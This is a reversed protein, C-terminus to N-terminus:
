PTIKTLSTQDFDIIKQYSIQSSKLVTFVSEGVTTIYPNSVDLYTLRDTLTEVTAGSRGILLVGGLQDRFAQDARWILEVVFVSGETLALSTLSASAIIEGSPLDTDVNLGQTWKYLVLTPNALGEPLRVALGYANRTTANNILTETSMLCAVGASSISAPTSGDIQTLRLTTQLRGSLHGHSLETPFGCMSQYNTTGVNHTSRLDGTGTVPTLIDLSTYGEITGTQDTGFTFTWNEYPM